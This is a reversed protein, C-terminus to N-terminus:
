YTELFTLRQKLANQSLYDFRVEESESLKRKRKLYSKRRLAREKFINYANESADAVRSGDEERM